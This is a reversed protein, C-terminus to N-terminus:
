KLESKPLYTMAALTVKAQRDTKAKAELLLKVAAVHGEQSAMGLATVGEQLTTHTVKNLCQSVNCPHLPTCDSGQAPRSYSICYKQKYYM